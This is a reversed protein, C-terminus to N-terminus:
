IYENERISRTNGKIFPKYVSEKYNLLEREREKERERGWIEKPKIAADKSSQGRKKSFAYGLKWFTVNVMKDM